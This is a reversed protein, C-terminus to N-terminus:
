PTISLTVTDTYAGAFADRYDTARLTGTITLTQIVNKPVSASAPTLTLDYPLYQPLVSHKMRHQGPAAAYLGGDDAIFFTAIPASGMCRFTVTTTATVDSSTSPDVTGFPLSATASNFRCVSKSLVTASVNLMTAGTAVSVDAILAAVMAVFCGIPICTRM